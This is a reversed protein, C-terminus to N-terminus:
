LKLLFPLEQAMCLVHTKHTHVCTNYTYRLIVTRMHVKYTHMYHVHIYKINLYTTYM